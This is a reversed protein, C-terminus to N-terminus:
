FLEREQAPGDSRDTLFDRSQDRAEAVASLLGSWDAPRPSLIVDGTAADRRILVEM